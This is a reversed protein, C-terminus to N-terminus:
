PVLLRFNAWDAGPSASRASLEAARLRQALAVDLAEGARMGDYLRPGIQAALADDIPRSAAVVARAGAVLFAQGLGLGGATAGSRARATECGSLVVVEPAARLAILDGVSLGGGGALPLRSDWGEVGGPQGHGAYHLLALPEAEIADRVRDFTAEEGLLERVEFRAASLAGRVLEVEGRTAPLDGRPDAVLLARAARAPRPPAGTDAGYAVPVSSILPAGGWPLAHWDIRELAGPVIFRVREARLIAERFPSLLKASLDEPASEPGVDRAIRAATEGSTIAFAAIGHDLPHYALILEGPAPATLEVAGPLAGRSLAAIAADLDRTLRAREGREEELKRALEPATLKWYEAANAGLRASGNRYAAIAEDWRARESESLGAIRDRFRLSSTVRARARRAIEAAKAPDRRLFLEVAARTGEDFNGLYGVRGEDVPVLLSGRMVLAEAREYAEGAESDRGLAELVRAQGLAGRWAFDPLLAAEALTELREFLALARGPAGARLALQAEVDLWTALLTGDPSPAARRADELKSQAEGDRGERLRLLAYNTLGRSLAMADRCRTARLALTRDLLEAAGAPDRASQIRFWAMNDWLNARACPDATSREAEDLLAEGEAERGLRQLLGALVQQASTRYDAQGLRESGQVSERLLSLASRLDGTEKALLGQYYRVGPLGAPAERALAEARSLAARAELFRRQGYLCAYALAMEDRLASAPQRAARHADAARALGLVARDTLGRKLLIRALIGVADARVRPDTHESLRAAIREADDLRGEKRLAEARELEAGEAAVSCPSSTAAGLALVAISLAAARLWARGREWAM